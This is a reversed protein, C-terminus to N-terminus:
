VVLMAALGGGAADLSHAGVGREGEGFLLLLMTVAAACVKGPLLLEEHGSLKGSPVPTM